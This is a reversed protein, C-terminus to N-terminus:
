MSMNRRQCYLLKCITGVCEHPVSSHETFNLWQRMIKSQRESVCQNDKHKWNSECTHRDLGQNELASYNDVDRVDQQHNESRSLSHFDPSRNCSLGQHVLLKTLILQAADDCTVSKYMLESSVRFYVYKYNQFKDV